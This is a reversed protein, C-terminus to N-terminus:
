CEGDAIRWMQGGPVKVKLSARTVGGVYPSGDDKAVYGVPFVV